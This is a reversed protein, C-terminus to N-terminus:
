SDARPAMMGFLRSREIIGAKFCHGQKCPYAGLHPMSARVADRLSPFDLVSVAYQGAIDCPTCLRGDPTVNPVGYPFCRFPTFSRIRRYYGTSGALHPADGRRRLDLLEDILAEYQPNGALDAPARGHENAPALELLFGQRRTFDVMERVRPLNRRNIVCNVIVRPKGEPRDRLLALNAFAREAKAVPVNLNAAHARVDPSHISVSVADLLDLVEPRRDLEILNSSMGVSRFGLRRAEALIPVIHPHILPEGGSLYLIDVTRRIREMLRRAGDLGLQPFRDRGARIEAAKCCFPCRANCAFNVFWCVALPAGAFTEDFPARAMGRVLRWLPKASLLSIIDASRLRPPDNGETM